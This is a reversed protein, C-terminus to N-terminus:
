SLVLEIQGNGEISAAALAMKLEFVLLEWEIKLLWIFLYLLDFLSCIFSFMSLLIPYNM